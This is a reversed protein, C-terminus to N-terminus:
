EGAMSAQKRSYQITEEIQEGDVQCTEMVARALQLSSELAEPVVLKAGMSYFEASRSMDKARMMVPLHPWHRLVAQLIDQAIEHRDIAIVVAAAHGAQLTKWQERRRIDGYIVPYGKKQMAYVLEPNQDIARYPIKQRELTHGIIQGIRGFGAIIVHHNDQSDMDAFTRLATEEDAVLKAVYPAIRFLVPTVLMCLATVLLFFQGNATPILGSYMGVSLILFAFEGPQSLLMAAKISIRKPIRFLRALPYIVAAKIVLIGGVSALVWFPNAAIDRLDIMMGISLFFLGLLLNKLPEIIVEIEHRFETEAILLGALFAGLAASLGAEHTILSCAIVLFLSFATLIDPNKGFQLSNMLPRLLRKGLFYMIIITGAALALSGIIMVGLSKDSDGGFVSAMILIPVVALDQMLLISFSLIGVPRNILHRESLLQM